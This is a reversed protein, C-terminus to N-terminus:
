SAPTRGSTRDVATGAPPTGGEAQELWDRYWRGFTVPQGDGDLLPTLDQEDARDDSWIRGREPGSIILWQRLACGLHNIVVAGVTREPAWMLAEWRADWAEMADDFEDIEEFDEEEPQESLLSEVDEPDPGRRPFPEALRSLEALDAGDGEWRWLGEVHRVPFVGYAPGAGGAGVQLLFDRYEEPLEVGIQAQLESLDEPTLPADLLFRHGLAGFVQTSDPRAALAEVRQRIGTWTQDNM